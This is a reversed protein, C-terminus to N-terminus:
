RLLVGQKFRLKIRRVSELDDLPNGQLAVFSAEYGESLAGIRRQPFITQATETWMRLLTLNDFAGISKLYLFEALSSDEPSDSGIALRVHNQSLLKLDTVQARRVAPVDTEPLAGYRVLPATSALITTDVVVGRKAALMIDNLPITAVDIQPIHAIEDVGAAVANHFDATNVIHASVKLNNRHARDVIKSLLRPDLGKQFGVSPDHKRTEFEDSRWLFTKIFDAQQRLVLPWKRELDDESDVTFYRVDQLTEKTYGPYVGRQLLLEALFIPHGDTVTLSGQAFVVDVSDPRNLGLRRKMDRTVPLNGQIKVYFVGDALFRRIASRDMEDVGTGISHNHADAFPPVEWTGALDVRQEVRGPKKFTFQGDVSYVTRREFSRGTFWQGNVFEITLPRAAPAQANRLTNVSPLAVLAVTVFLWSVRECM